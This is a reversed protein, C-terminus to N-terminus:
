VFFYIMSATSLNLVLFWGFLSFSIGVYWSFFFVVRFFRGAIMQLFCWVVYFCCFEM